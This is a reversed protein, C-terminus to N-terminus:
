PYWDMDEVVLQKIHQSVVNYQLLYLVPCIRTSWYYSFTGLGNKVVVIHCQELENDLKYNSSTQLALTVKRLKYWKFVQNKWQHM